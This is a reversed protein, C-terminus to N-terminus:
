LDLGRVGTGSMLKAKYNYLIYENQWHKDLANKLKNITDSAIVSDPITNWISVIRVSFFFLISISLINMVVGMYYALSDM